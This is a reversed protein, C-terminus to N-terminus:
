ESFGNRPPHSKIANALRDGDLYVELNMPPAPERAPGALSRALDLMGNTLKDVRGREHELDARLTRWDGTNGFHAALGELLASGCPEELWFTPEVDDSHFDVPDWTHSNGSMHLIETPPSDFGDRHRVIFIAIGFVVSRHSQVYVRIV